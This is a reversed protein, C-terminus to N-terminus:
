RGPNRSHSLSLEVSNAFGAIVGRRSETRQLMVHMRCPLASAAATLSRWTWTIAEGAQKDVLATMLPTNAAPLASYVYRCETDRSM